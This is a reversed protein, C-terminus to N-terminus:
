SSKCRLCWVCVYVRKFLHNCHQQFNTIKKEYFEGKNLIKHCFQLTIAFATSNVTILSLHYFDKYFVFGFEKSKKVSCVFDDFTKNDFIEKAEVKERPESFLSLQEEM